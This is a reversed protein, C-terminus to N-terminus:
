KPKRGFRPKTAIVNGTSRSVYIVTDIGHDEGYSHAIVLSPKIQMIQYRRGEHSYIQGIKVTM